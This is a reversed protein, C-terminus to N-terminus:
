AQVRAVRGGVAERFIALAIGFLLIAPNIYINYSLLDERFYVVDLLYLSQYIATLLCCQDMGGLSLMQVLKNKEIIM